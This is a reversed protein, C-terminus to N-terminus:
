RSPGSHTDDQHTTSSNSAMDSKKGASLTRETEIRQKKARWLLMLAKALSEGYSYGGEKPGFAKKYFIVGNTEVLQCHVTVNRIMRGQQIKPLDVRAIEDDTADVILGILIGQTARDDLCPYCPYGNVNSYDWDPHSRLNVRMKAEQHDAYEPAWVRTLVADHWEWEEQQALELAIESM